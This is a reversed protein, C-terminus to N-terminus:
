SSVATATVVSRRWQIYAVVAMSTYVLMLMSHFNLSKTAYLFFYSSDVVIWLLWNEIIKRCLMWQAILSLVTTSADLLAVQSHLYVKLIYAMITIAIIAISTLVLGQEITIHEVTVKQQGRDRQHWQYWGYFSSFFYVAELSMDGYLGSRAYLITNLTTAIVSLPWAVQNIRILYYTAAFSFISGLLDLHQVIYPM